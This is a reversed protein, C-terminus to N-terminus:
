SGGGADAEITGWREADAEAALRKLGDWGPQRRYQGARQGNNGAMRNGHPTETSRRLWNRWTADWDLKVGKSGPAAAWYDRFRSLEREILGPTAPPDFDDPLPKPQWDPALRTGRKAAARTGLTSVVPSDTKVEETETETETEPPTAHQQQLTADGNRKAERHRRSRETSSDSEYQRRSWSTVVSDSIMGLAAFETFIATILGLPECLIAAVRRPTTDFAGGSNCTAAAELICHWAAIAVSRSCGAVLAVEALKADTVTGEYARYWRSM